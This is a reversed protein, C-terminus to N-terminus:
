PSNPAGDGFESATGVSSMGHFGHPPSQEEIEMQGPSLTGQGPATAQLELQPLQAWPLGPKRGTLRSGKLGLSPGLPSKPFQSCLPSM